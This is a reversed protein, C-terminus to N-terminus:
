NIAVIAGQVIVGVDGKIAVNPASVEAQAASKVSVPGKADLEITGMTGLKIGSEDIAIYSKGVQITVNSMAEIVINKAKLFFDKTTQESHDSKFVEIVDGTVSLSLSGGVAKAEKGAVKLHRDKGIKEKHDADVLEERNYEIHVFQDNKVILHQDHGVWAFSDSKIRVDQNKEAHIFIQEEGKKDEFRIENFGEGGKTSQTKVTSKTKEAPLEYPPGNAGNYVSGVIIPRDPDGELFDVVVEQGIRPIFLAGWQKGAWYQSVRIWCSSNEDRKESRDWHFQVKVRGYKDVYIEEGAPGVVIATQPGQVVPKPTRRVARFQDTKEIADFSSRYFPGAGNASGGTSAFEGADARLTVSTVLYDKNRDSRPHGKMKFISGCAIGRATSEGRLIKHATQLEQLRVNARREGEAHNNYGGPYDYVEFKAAGHERTVHTSSRLPAKPKEFDFDWLAYSVPQVEKEMSWSTIAQREIEASEVERFLIEEYGEYPKHVGISDSLIMVHKDKRHTFFYYIGEEEMLRSVFNFDTERYQVCYDRKAYEVSLQNSFDNFGHGSFVEALIEPVTKGQFIRCDATRTLMWLWPVIEARYHAIGEQNGLQVLRSVFGNFYRTAKGNLELRLAVPKGVVRDFEIDGRESRLEAEIHFLGSLEERVTMSRLALLNPELSTEIAIQRNEQKLAM